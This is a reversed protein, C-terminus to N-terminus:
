EYSDGTYHDIIYFYEYFRTNNRLSDPFPNTEQNAKFLRIMPENGERLDECDYLLEYMAELEELYKNSDSQQQAPQAPQAEKQEEIELKICRPIYAKRQSNLYSPTASSLWKEIGSIWKPGAWLRAHGTYEKGGTISEESQMLYIDVIQIEYILDKQIKNAKWLALISDRMLKYEKLPSDSDWLCLPNKNWKQWLLMFLKEDKTNALKLCNNNKETVKSTIPTMQSVPSTDDNVSPPTDDTSRTDDTIRTDTNVPTDTIVGLLKYINVGTPTMAYKTLLGKDQLKRVARLVSSRSLGTLNQITTYSPFATRNDKSAHLIYTMYVLAESATSSNLAKIDSKYIIGYQCSDSKSKNHKQYHQMTIIRQKNFSYHPPEHNTWRM